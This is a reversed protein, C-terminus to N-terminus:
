DRRQRRRLRAAGLAALAVLPALSTGAPSGGPTAVGCEVSGAEDNAALANSGADPGADAPARAQTAQDLAEEVTGTALSQTVTKCNPRRRGSCVGGSCRDLVTCANGDNCTTGNAKV